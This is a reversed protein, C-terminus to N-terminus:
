LRDYRRADIWRTGQSWMLSYLRNYLLETVFDDTSSAATLTAPPLGGAHERILNIDAIAGDRDGNHWRVEARPLLLEENTVWAIPARLDAAAPDAAGNSPVPNLTVALGEMRVPLDA